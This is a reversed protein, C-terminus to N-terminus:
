ILIMEVTPVSIYDIGMFFISYIRLSKKFGFRLTHDETGLVM